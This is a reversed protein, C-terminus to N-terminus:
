NGGERPLGELREAVAYTGDPHLVMIILLNACDASEFYGLRDGSELERVLRFEGAIFCNENPDYIEMPTRV